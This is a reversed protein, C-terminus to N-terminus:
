GMEGGTNVAMHLLVRSILALYPDLHHVEAEPSVLETASSANAEGQHTIKPQPKLGISVAMQYSM